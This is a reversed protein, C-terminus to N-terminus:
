HKKVYETILKKEAETYLELEVYKVSPIPVPMVTKNKNAKKNKTWRPHSRKRKKKTPATDCVPCLSNSIHYDFFCNECKKSPLIGIVKIGKIEVKLTPNTIEKCALIYVIKNQIFVPCKLHNGMPWGPHFYLRQLQNQLEVVDWQLGYLGQHIHGFIFHVDSDM